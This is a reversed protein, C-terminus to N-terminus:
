EIVSLILLNSAFHNIASLRTDVKKKIVIDKAKINQFSPVFFSVFFVIFCFFSFLFGSYYAIFIDFSNLVFAM